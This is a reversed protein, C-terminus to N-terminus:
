SSLASHWVDVHRGDYEATAKWHPGHGDDYMRAWPQHRAARAERLLEYMAWVRRVLTEPLARGNSDNQDSHPTVFL